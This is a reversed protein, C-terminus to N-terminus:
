VKFFILPSSAFPTFGLGKVLVFHVMFNLEPLFENLNPIILCALM